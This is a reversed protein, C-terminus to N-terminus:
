LTALGLREAITNSGWMQLSSINMIWAGNKYSTEETLESVEDEGSCEFGSVYTHRQLRNLM